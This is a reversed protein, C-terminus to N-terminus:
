FKINCLISTTCTLIDPISYRIIPSPKEDDLNKEKNRINNNNITALPANELSSRKGSSIGGGGGSVVQTLFKSGTSFMNFEPVIISAETKSFNAAVNLNSSLYCNFDIGPNKGPEEGLCLEVQEQNRLHSSSTTPSCNWKSSEEIRRISADSGRLKHHYPFILVLLSLIFFLLLFWNDFLFSIFWNM